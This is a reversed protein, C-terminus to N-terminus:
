ESAEEAPAADGETEGGEADGEAADDAPEEAQKAENIAVLSLGEDSVLTAGEPLTIDGAHIITGAEAGEISVVINEPIHLAEAEIEIASADQVVLTGPAANGEIVLSVEVTVKEGRRVILLDVHQLFNRLPHIDVQKTLALQSKGDIDLDIVANMGNKRLIAALERNPLLLHQPDAGHGYLVAPVQGERRARRAAGKGKDDRVAVNLKPTDTAM